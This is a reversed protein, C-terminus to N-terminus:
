PLGLVMVGEQVTPLPYRSSMVSARDGPFPPEHCIGVEGCLCLASALVPGRGTKKVAKRPSWDVSIHASVDEVLRVAGLLNCPQFSTQFGPISQHLAISSQAFTGLEKQSCLACLVLRLGM